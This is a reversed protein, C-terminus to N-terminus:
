AMGGGEVVGAFGPDTDEDVVVVVIAVRVGDEEEVVVDKLTPGRMITNEGLSQVPLPHGIFQRQQNVLEDFMDPTIVMPEEGDLEEGERAFEIRLEQPSAADEFANESLPTGSALEGEVALVAMVTTSKEEGM